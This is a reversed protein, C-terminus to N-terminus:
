LPAPPSRRSASRRARSPIRLATAVLRRRGRARSGSRAPTLCPTQCRSRGNPSTRPSLVVLQDAPKTREQLTLVHGEHVRGQVELPRRRELAREDARQARHRTALDDRVALEGRERTSGPGRSSSSRQAGRVPEGEDDRTMADDGRMADAPVAGGSDLDLPAEQRQFANLQSWTPPRERPARSSRAAARTRGGRPARRARGRLRSGADGRTRHTPAEDRGRSRRPRAGRM